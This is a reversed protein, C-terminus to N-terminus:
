CSKFGRRISASKGAAETEGRLADARQVLADARQVWRPPVEVRTDASSRVGSMSWEQRAVALSGMEPQSIPCEITM